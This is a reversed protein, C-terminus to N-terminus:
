FTITWTGSLSIDAAKNLAAARTTRAYLAGSATLLGFELIALPNAEGSGLSFAFTVQNSAPYSVGDLAKTYAGTLTTNGVVPATGSTGFGISAVSNGTVAGGLLQAHVLKSGTVILNHDCWSQVFNGGRFIKLFVSGTPGSFEDSLIM